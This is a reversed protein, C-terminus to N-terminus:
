TKSPVCKGLHLHLVGQKHLRLLHEFEAPMSHVNKKSQRNDYYHNTLPVQQGFPHRDFPWFGYLHVNNCLELALSTVMLGTSLRMSRLGQAHWYRALCTLYEPNLFIPKPGGGFDELTYVARLSLPTNHGYSFAPLLLMSASFPRLSEMFPRRREMLGSFKELLISPNATVLGTKNGVDVVYGNEVPPLNCRIVFSASDIMKGCSSNTLIGGNGVVACTDWTKNGFPQVKAFTSFLAPSVQLPKRKEGDYTIKSGLPTNAQTVVAKSVGNCKSNLSARFKKLNAEQKRWKPDYDAVAKKIFASERPSSFIWLLLPCSSCLTIILLLKLFLARM